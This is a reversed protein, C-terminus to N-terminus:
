GQSDQNSWQHMETDNSSPSINTCQAPKLDVHFRRVLQVSAVIGERVPSHDCYNSM